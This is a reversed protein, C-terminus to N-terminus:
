EQPKPYQQKVKLCAERYRELAETDNKVWADLFDTMPPYAIKRQQKVAYRAEAPERDPFRDLPCAKWDWQVVATIFCDSDMQGCRNLETRHECAMCVDLKEHAWGTADPISAHLDNIMTLGVM